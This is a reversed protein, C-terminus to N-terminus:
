IYSYTNGQLDEQKAPDKESMEMEKTSQAPEDIAVPRSTYGPPPPMPEATIKRHSIPTHMSPFYPSAEVFEIPKKRKKRMVLLGAVLGIVAVLALVILVIYGAALRDSCYRAVFEDPIDMEKDIFVYKSGSKPTFGSTACKHCTKFQSICKDISGPYVLMELNAKSGLTSYYMQVSGYFRYAVNEEQRNDITVKGAESVFTIEERTALREEMYVILQNNSSYPQWYVACVEGVFGDNQFEAMSVMQLVLENINCKNRGTIKFKNGALLPTSGITSVNIEMSYAVVTFILVPLSLIRYTLMIMSYHGLAM